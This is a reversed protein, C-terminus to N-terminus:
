SISLRFIRGLRKKTLSYYDLIGGEEEKEGDMIVIKRQKKVRKPLKAKVKEIQEPDGIKEEVDRWTELLM